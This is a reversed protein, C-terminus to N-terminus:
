AHFFTFTYAQLATMKTNINGLIHDNETFKFNKPAINLNSKSILNQFVSSTASDSMEVVLIKSLITIKHVNFCVSSAYINTYWAIDHVSRGM